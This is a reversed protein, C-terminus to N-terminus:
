QSNLVAILDNLVGAATVEKGAGPGQIILQNDAYWDSEIIFINDGPKLSVAAHDADVAVLDVNIEDANVSAIYRLQQQKETALEWLSQIHQNISTQNQWFSDIEGELLHGPLVPKFNIKRPKFGCERALILAKRYVDQGSLDDRPDPETLAGQHAKKVWEMFGTEGDYQGFLWSLSGSFVGSVQRIQDGSEKIRNIADQVPLAAGVTTNKLWLKQRKQLTAEIQSAWDDNAAAIKNAVILHWGNEAFEHYQSAVHDSATVDIVVLPKGAYVQLKELLQGQHNPENLNIQQALLCREDFQFYRSNAVAVVSLSQHVQQEIEAKKDKLIKLFQQGINGYGLVVIPISPELGFFTHHLDQLLLPAQQDSLLVCLTHDNAPYHINHVNFQAARNLLKAIIQHNQRIHDGVASILSVKSLQQQLKLGHQKILQTTTFLDDHEVYFSLIHSTKDYHNAYNNIQEATLKTQFQRAKLEDVASLSLFVLNAKYALTKVKQEHEFHNQVLSQQRKEVQTGTSDTGCTNIVLRPPRQLIPAITKQHLVNSGLESLAQAEALTLQKIRQAQPIINPDASYVGDVDTWLYVTNSAVLEAILTATYDSGNRGLTISHGHLDRAIFGTVIHLKPQELDEACNFALKLLESKATARNNLCNQQDIELLSRADLWQNPIGSEVLKASLLQASWLEGLVLVEHPNNITKAVQVSLRHIDQKVQELLQQPQVLVATILEALYQKLGDQSQAHGQIVGLLLDTVKGNASVVVFDSAKVKNKITDVVQEIHEADKLSSGGFKHVDPTAIRKTNIQPEAM